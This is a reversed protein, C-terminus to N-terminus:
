TKTADNNDGESTFDFPDCSDFPDTPREPAFDEDSDINRKMDKNGCKPCIMAKLVVDKSKLWPAYKFNSTVKDWHGDFRNGCKCQYTVIM